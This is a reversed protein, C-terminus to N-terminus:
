REVAGPNKGTMTSRRPLEPSLWWSPPSTRSIMSFGNPVVSPSARSSFRLTSAIKSSVWTNRM